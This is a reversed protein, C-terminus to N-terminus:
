LDDSHKAENLLASIDVDATEEKNKQQLQNSLARLKISKVSANPEDRILKSVKMEPPTLSRFFLRSADKEGETTATVASSVRLLQKYSLRKIACAYTNDVIRFSKPTISKAATLKTTRTSKKYSKSV